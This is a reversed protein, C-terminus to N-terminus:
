TNNASGGSSLVNMEYWPWYVSTSWHTLHRLARIIQLIGLATDSTGILQQAWLLTQGEHRSTAAFYWHSGQILLAPLFPLHSVGDPLGQEALLSWQAAQWVGVQTQAELLGEGPKKSEVSITILKDRLPYYDTHNVTGNTTRERLGRLNGQPEPQQPHLAICFDVMKSGRSLGILRATTCPVCSATISTTTKSASASSPPLKPVLRSTPSSPTTLPITTGATGLALKFIPWHVLMNWSAEPHVDQTCLQTATLVDLVDGLQVPDWFQQGSHTKDDRCYVSPRFNYFEDDECDDGGGNDSVEDGDTNDNDHDGRTHNASNARRVATRRSKIQAALHMPVVDDGRQFTEIQRLMEKLSPPMRPDRRNIPVVSLPNHRSIELRLLRKVPSCSRSSAESASSDTTTTKSTRGSTTSRNDSPPRALPTRHPDEDDPTPHSRKHRKSRPTSAPSLDDRREIEMSDPTLPRRARQRKRKRNKEKLSKPEVSITAITDSEECARLWKLIDTM